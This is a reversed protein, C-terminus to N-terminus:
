KGSLRMVGFDDANMWHDNYAQETVYVSGFFHDRRKPNENVDDNDCYALSIGMIKDATLQVRSKEPTADDYTDNYVKLALEWVATHGTKRLKFADFHSAYNKPINHEWDTGTMDGSFCSDTAQGDLPFPAYIHHAFANEANGGWAEGIEGTGNFVHKGGSHDEDIFIEIIDFDYVPPDSVAPDFGDVFVDDTVEVLFYLLNSQSSWVIKFRGSFDDEPIQTGYPIWVQDIAQWPVNQWCADDGVGDIVPLVEAESIIIAQTQVSKRCNAVFCTLLLTWYFFYRLRQM